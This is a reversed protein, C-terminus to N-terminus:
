RYAMVLKVDKYEPFSPQHKHWMAELADYFRKHVADVQEQSAQVPPWVGCSCGNPCGPLLFYSFRASNHQM